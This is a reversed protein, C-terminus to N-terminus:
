DRGFTPLPLPDSNEWFHRFFSGMERHPGIAIPIFSYNADNIVGILVEDASLTKTTVHHTENTGGTRRVFKKREGERLRM